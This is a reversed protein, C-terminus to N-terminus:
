RPEGVGAGPHDHGGVEAPGLARGVRLVRQARDGLPEALQEARRDGEGGVGDAVAGAAVTSLRASPPTAAAPSRATRAPRSWCPRRRAPPTRRGAPRRTPRRGVDVVGEARHVALVGADVVDGRASGCTRRRGAARRTAPATGASRCSWRRRGYTTTRPPLLTERCARRHDGRQQGLDVPQQDAAPHAEREERGLAVLDAVRQQLVVLDLGAPPQQSRSPSRIPSGASTTTAASMPAASASGLDDVDSAIGAPRFPRSTPGTVRPANPPATASAPVTNQFPGIPTNSTAGNAAPVRATASAIASVSPKVTTPPPSEAAATRREADALVPEVM